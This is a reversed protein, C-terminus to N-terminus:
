CSQCTFYWGLLLSVLLLFLFLLWVQKVVIWVQKVVVVADAVVPNVIVVAAVFM